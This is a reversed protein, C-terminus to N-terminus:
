GCRTGKRASVGADPRPMSTLVREVAGIMSAHVKAAIGYLLRIEDGQEEPQLCEARLKGDLSSKVIIWLPTNSWGPGSAPEAAVAVVTDHKTLTV